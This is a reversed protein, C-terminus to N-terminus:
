RSGGENQQSVGNIRSGGKSRYDRNLEKFFYYTLKQLDSKKVMGIEKVKVNHQITHIVAFNLRSSGVLGSNATSPVIAVPDFEIGKEDDLLQAATDVTHVVSHSSPDCGPKRTARGNYTM